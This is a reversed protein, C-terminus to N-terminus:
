TGLMHADEKMVVLMDLSIKHGKIPGHVRNEMVADLEVMLRAM